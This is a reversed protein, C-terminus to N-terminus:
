SKKQRTPRVPEIGTVMKNDNDDIRRKAEKQNKASIETKCSVLDDGRGEIYFVRWRKM